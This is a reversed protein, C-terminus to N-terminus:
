GGMLKAVPMLVAGMLLEIRCATPFIYNEEHIHYDKFEKCMKFSSDNCNFYTLRLVCLMKSPFSLGEFVKLHHQVPFALGVKSNKRRWALREM